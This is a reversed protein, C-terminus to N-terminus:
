FYSCRYINWNIKLRKWNNNLNIIYPPYTSYINICKLNQYSNFKELDNSVILFKASKIKQGKFENIKPLYKTYFFPEMNNVQYPNEGM